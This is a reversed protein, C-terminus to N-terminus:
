AMIAMIVVNNIGNNIEYAMIIISSTAMIIASAMISMVGNRQNRWQWAMIVGGGNNNAAM